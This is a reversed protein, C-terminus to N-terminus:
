AIRSSAPSGVGTWYRRLFQLGFFAGALRTRLRPPRCHFNRFRRGCQVALFRGRRAHYESPLRRVPRRDNGPLAVPGERFQVCFRVPKHARKATCPQPRAVRHRQHTGVPGLERFSEGGALPAAEAHRRKVPVQFTRLDAIDDVIAFCLSKDGIGPERRGGGLCRCHRRRENCLEGDTAGDFAEHGIVVRHVHFLRVIKGIGDHPRLHHVGGARCSM